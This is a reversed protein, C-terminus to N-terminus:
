YYANMSIVSISVFANPDERRGCYFVCCSVGADNLARVQFCYSQGPQLSHIRCSSDKGHYVVETSGADPYTMLLEYKVLTAGGCYDPSGSLLVGFLESSVFGCKCM